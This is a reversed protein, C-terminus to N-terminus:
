EWRYRYNFGVADVNSEDTDNFPAGVLCQSIHKWSVDIAHQRGYEYVKGISFSCGFTGANEWKPDSGTLNMNFGAGITFEYYDAESETPLSTLWLLLVLILLKRSFKRDNM